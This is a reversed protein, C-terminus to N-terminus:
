KVHHGQNALVRAWFHAGSCAEMGILCPEKNAFFTFLQDRKIKKKLITKGHQDVGHIQFINKALDIGVTTVTM